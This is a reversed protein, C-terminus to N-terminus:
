LYNQVHDWNPNGKRGGVKQNKPCKQIEPMKSFHQVGERVLNPNKQIEYMEYFSLIAM